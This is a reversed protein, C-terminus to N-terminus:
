RWRRRRLPKATRARYARDAGDFVADIAANREEVSLEARDIAAFRRCIPCGLDRYRIV